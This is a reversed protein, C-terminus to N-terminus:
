QNALKFGEADKVCWTLSEDILQDYNEDTSDKELVKKCENRLAKWADGNSGTLSSLGSIRKQSNAEVMYKTKLNEWDAKDNEDSEGNKLITKGKLKPSDSVLKPVVCFRRSKKYDGDNDHDKKVIDNCMNLLDTTSLNKDKNEPLKKYVELVKNLTEQPSVSSLLEFGEDRLRQAVSKTDSQSKVIGYTVATGGGAAAVGALTLGKLNM